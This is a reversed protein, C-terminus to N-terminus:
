LVDMSRFIYYDLKNLNIIICWDDSEQTMTDDNVLHILIPLM